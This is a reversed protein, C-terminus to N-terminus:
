RQQGGFSNQITLFSRSYMRRILDIDQEPFGYAEFMYFIARHNVANFANKIDLYLMVSLGGRPGRRRRQDALIGHIKALQRKASRNRRFGEQVDDVLQYEEITQKLRDNCILDKIILKSCLKAVPRHDKITMAASTKPLLTVTGATWEEAGVTPEAGALVANVAHRVYEQFIPPGYKCYERPQRDSGPSKNVSLKAAYKERFTTSDVPRALLPESKPDIRRMSNWIDLPVPCPPM